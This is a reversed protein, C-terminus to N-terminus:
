VDRGREQYERFAEEVLEPTPENGIGFPVHVSPTVGAVGEIHALQDDFFIHPQFEKLVRSKDIGGLFFVEDVEIEWARLTTVVREHAPASRATVIATRLRPTYASDRSQRKKELQQLRAIEHFFRALPGKELPKGAGSREANQFAELGDKKFVAEASDDVVVGDFDFAIRLEVDEERDTFKTPFVRGAPLGREVAKRVDEPNASLFLSANFSNMYRFPNGGNVFAARSIDLGHHEISKFVRLGTDPDNRSLLVVEVPRDDEGKHNLRLIRKVLPFAVGPGLPVNENERQYKRYEELGRERFVRDSETLDFLASSAVAIVLKQDIAYAM